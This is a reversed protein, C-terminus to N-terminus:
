ATEEQPVLMAVLDPRSVAQSPLGDTSTAETSNTGGPSDVSPPTPREAVQETAAEVIRELTNLRDITTVRNARGLRWFEDFDDPHVVHRAMNKAFLAAEATNEVQVAVTAAEILDLFAEDTLEPHVRIRAGFYGFDADIAPRAEGGFDGLSARPATRRTTRRRAAM